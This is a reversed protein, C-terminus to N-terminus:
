LKRKLERIEEISIGTCRSIVEEDIGEVLLNRADELKGETIGHNRGEALGQNRGDEKGEFYILHFGEGYKEIVRAVEPSTTVTKLMAIMESLEEDKFFRALVKIECLIIKEKFNDKPINALGILVIIFIMLTKIPMKIDMDPLILLDIAEKESLEEQIITKYVLTSLVKWGDRNKTFITKIHFTINEDIEVSEKGHNPNAISFVGTEVDYDCNEPNRRTLDHYDYLNRLKGDNLPTSMFETIQIKEGDVIVVMDKLQGTEPIETEIFKIYEGTGYMYRHFIVGLLRYMFKYSRDVSQPNNVAM